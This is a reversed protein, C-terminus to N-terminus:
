GTNCDDDEQRLSEGGDTAATSTDITDFTLAGPQSHQPVRDIDMADTQIQQSDDRGEAEDDSTSRPPGFMKHVTAILYGSLMPVTEHSSETDGLDRVYTAAQQAHVQRERGFQMVCKSLLTRTDTVSETTAALREYVTNIMSIQNAPTEESKTTYSTIYSAAAAGSKGSQVAKLDHNHRTAVLLTPNHWNILPHQVRLQISNSDPDFTSHEVVEHPFLFRCSDRGGKFCTFTCRHRQVEHALLSHDQTFQEAYDSESPFPPREQRPKRKTSSPEQQTGDTSPYGHTLLDDFFQLYRQRFEEDTQMRARLASPNMGGELWILCHCHLQGRMSHEKVLYFASLRGFLGGDITSKKKRIDWGLLYQFVANVHFHFYDSAAVPDDAVRAARAKSSPLKPDKTDLTITRDGFLIQFVPSHSPGPNLTLFLQFIGFKGVYARIDARARTMVAKSGPVNASVLECKKLLSFIQVEDGCLTNLSGGRAVHKAVREVVEPNLRQLLTSFRDFDRSECMLRSGLHIARRQKINAVIFVYSWHRRFAPESFDLLHKAQRAFSLPTKRLPQEFGGTGWPFLTPFMGPFLDPNNYDEVFTSGHRIILDPRETGTANALASASRSHAPVSIGNIDLLGHHELFTRPHPDEDEEDELTAPHVDLGATEKAFLSPVENHEEHMVHRMILEPVDDEPLSDLAKDDIRFQPYGKCHAQLYLLLGRVKDRRVKFVNRLDKTRPKRPGIVICSLLAANGDVAWPLKTATSVTNLPFSCAHGKMVRQREEEAGPATLDYLRVIYASALYKACLREELWTIDQLDEPLYGRINDNALALAPLKQPTATLANHCESCIDLDAAAEKVHVGEAHLALGDLTPDGYQFHHMPRALLHPDTVALIDLDLNCAPIRRCTIDKVTFLLDHNFSRRGCVACTEAIALSTSDAFSQMCQDTIATPIRQPWPSSVDPEEEAHEDGVALTLAAVTGLQAHRRRQNSQLYPPFFAGYRESLQRHVSPIFRALEDINSFPLRAARELTAVEDQLM